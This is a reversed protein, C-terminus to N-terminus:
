EEGGEPDPRNDITECNMQMGNKANVIMVIEFAVSDKGIDGGLITFMRKRAEDYTAKLEQANSQQDSYNWYTRVVLFGNM